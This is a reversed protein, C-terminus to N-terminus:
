FNRIDLTQAVKRPFITSLVKLQSCLIPTMLTFMNTYSNNSCGFSPRPENRM